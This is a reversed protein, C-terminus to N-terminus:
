NPRSARAADMEQSTGVFFIDAPYVHGQQASRTSWGHIMGTDDSTLALPTPTRFRDVHAFRTFRWAAPMPSSTCGKGEADIRIVVYAGDEELARCAPDGYTVTAWGRFTEAIEYRKSLGSFGIASAGAVMSSVAVLVLSSLVVSKRDMMIKM